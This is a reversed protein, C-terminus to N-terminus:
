RPQVKAFVPMKQWDDLVRKAEDALLRIHPRTREEIPRRVEDLVSGTDRGLANFDTRVNAYYTAKIGTYWIVATCMPCPECSTYIVCDRLDNSGLARAANRIATIEAHATPDNTSAQQASGEGIIEGDHVVVSGFPREGLTLKKRSLAIARRM